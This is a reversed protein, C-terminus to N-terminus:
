RTQVLLPPAGDFFQCIGQFSQMGSPYYVDFYLKVRSSGEPGKKDSSSGTLVSVDVKYGKPYNHEIRSKCEVIEEPSAKESVKQQKPDSIFTWAYWFAPVGVIVGLIWEGKSYGLM